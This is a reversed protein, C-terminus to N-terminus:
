SLCEYQWHWVFAHSKYDSFATLSDSLQLLFTPGLDLHGLLLDLISSNSIHKHIAWLLSIFMRLLQNFVDNFLYLPSIVRILVLFSMSKRRVMERHVENDRVLCYASENTDLGPELGCLCLLRFVSSALPWSLPEFRLGV